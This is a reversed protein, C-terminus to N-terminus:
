GLGDRKKIGHLIPGVAELRNHAGPLNGSYIDNRSSTIAISINQVDVQFSEDFKIVFPRYSSYKKEFVIFSANMQEYSAISDKAQNKEISLLTLNYPNEISVLDDKLIEKTTASSIYSGAVAVVVILVITGIILNKDKRKIRECTNRGVLSYFGCVGTAAQFILVFALLYLVIQWDRGIWFFAILICLEAIFTRVIRDM